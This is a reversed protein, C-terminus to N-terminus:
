AALTGGGPPDFRGHSHRGHRETEVHATADTVIRTIITCVPMPRSTVMAEAAASL